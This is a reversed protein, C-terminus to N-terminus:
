VAFAILSCINLKSGQDLYDDSVNPKIEDDGSVALGAAGCSVFTTNALNRLAELPSVNEISSTTSCDDGSTPPSMGGSGGHQMKESKITQKSDVSNLNNMFYNAIQANPSGNAFPEQKLKNEDLKYVNKFGHSPLSSATFFGSSENLRARKASSATPMSSQDNTTHHRHDSSSQTALPNAMSAVLTQFIKAYNLMVQHQQHAFQSDDYPNSTASQGSSQQLLTTLFLALDPSPYSPTAAPESASSAMYSNTMLSKFYSQQKLGATTSDEPTHSNTSSASSTFSSAPSLSM